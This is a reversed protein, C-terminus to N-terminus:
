EFERARSLQLTGNATFYPSLDNPVTNETLSTVDFLLVISYLKGNKARTVINIQGEVTYDGPNTLEDVIVKDM